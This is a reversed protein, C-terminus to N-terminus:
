ELLWSAIWSSELAAQHEVAIDVATKDRHLAAARSVVGKTPHCRRRGIIKHNIRHFGASWHQDKVSWKVYVPFRQMPVWASIETLYQYLYM